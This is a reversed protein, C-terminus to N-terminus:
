ELMYKTQVANKLDSIARVTFGVLLAGGIFSLLNMWGLNKNLFAYFAGYLSAFTDLLACVVAIDIILSFNKLLRRQEFQIQKEEGETRIEKGLVYGTHEKIVMNAVRFIMIYSLVLLVGKVAVAIVTVIYCSFAEKNGNILNYYFNNHFYHRTFEEFISAVAYLSIVVTPLFKKIKVVRSFYLISVLLAVATLVDPIINVKELIFDFTFVGAILVFFTAIKVDKIIFSGQKNLQKKAYEDNVALVFDKDNKIRIFYRIAVVLWLVGITLVPVMSLLRMVGVYQYISNFWSSDDYGGLSPIEPLCTMFAKFAVFFISLAKFFDTYSKSKSRKKGHIATNTYFNGLSNMGDFLKIFAISVFIVELVGFTFSFLLLSTNRESVADIGFVWFVSVIKAADIIILREFARKADYLSESIMALKSLLASLIIYGFIDPLLDINAINPNFLFVFAISFACWHVKKREVLKM